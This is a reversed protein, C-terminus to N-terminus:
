LSWAWKVLRVLLVIVGIFAAVAVLGVIVLYLQIACGAKRDDSARQEEATLRRKRAVALLGVTVSLAAVLAGSGLIVALAQRETLYLSTSEAIFVGVALATISGIIFGVATIAVGRQVDITM